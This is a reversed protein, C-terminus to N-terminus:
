KTLNPNLEIRLVNLFIGLVLISSFQSCTYSSNTPYRKEGSMPRSMYQANDLLTVTRVHHREYALYRATRGNKDKAWLEAGQIVFFLYIFVFCFL